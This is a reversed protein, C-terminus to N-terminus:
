RRATTAAMGPSRALRNAAKAWHVALYGPRRPDSAAIIDVLRSLYDQDVGGADEALDGSAVSVGREDVLIVRHDDKEVDVRDCGPPGVLM